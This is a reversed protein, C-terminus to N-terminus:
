DVSIFSLHKGVEKMKIMVAGSVGTFVIRPQQILSPAVTDGGSAQTDVNDTEGTVVDDVNTVRLEFLCM